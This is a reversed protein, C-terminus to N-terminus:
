CAVVPVRQALACFLEYSLTGAAAAVEDAPMGAGWLTVSSGVDADIDTLDCALMDMSVRGLTRTRQGNVLIPTGTLAHRPYGDAYGCAVTGVRMPRDATFLAGYGVSQGAQLTQVSIIRSALTMVPQLGLQEASQLDPMPSGGYLMIGPRVYQHQAQPYRVLAASNAVSCPLGTPLAVAEFRALQEDIGAGDACAFHTMVGIQGVKGSARVRALVENLREPVFGLRNMGTNLKILVDLPRELETLELMRLQEDSHVASTIGASAAQLLDDVAFFGELLAIPHQMGANRLKMAEAIDLLAFGDAVDAIAEACRLLGHGYANAKVVALAKAQGALGKSILYNHRFAQPNIRALIPRSM